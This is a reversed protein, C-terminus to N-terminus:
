QGPIQKQEFGIWVDGLLACHEARLRRYSDQQEAIVELRDVRQELLDLKEGVTKLEKKVQGKNDPRAGGAPTVRQWQLLPVLILLLIAVTSLKIIAPAPPFRHEEDKHMKDFLGGIGSSKLLRQLVSQHVLVTSSFDTRVLFKILLHQQSKSRRHRGITPGSMMIPQGGTDPLCKSCLKSLQTQCLSQIGM